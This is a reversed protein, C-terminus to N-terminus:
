RGMTFPLPDGTTSSPLAIGLIMSWTPAMDRPHV